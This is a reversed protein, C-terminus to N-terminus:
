QSCNSGLELPRRGCVSTFYSAWNSATLTAPLPLSFPPYSKHKPAMERGKGSPWQAGTVCVSVCVSCRLPRLFPHLPVKKHPGELTPKSSSVPPAPDLGSAQLRAWHRCYFPKLFLPLSIFFSVSLQLFSSPFNFAAFCHGQWLVTDRPLLPFPRNDSM